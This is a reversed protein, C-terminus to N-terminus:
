SGASGSDSDGMPSLSVTTLASDAKSGRDLEIQGEETQM